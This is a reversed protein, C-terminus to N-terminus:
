HPRRYTSTARERNDLKAGCHRRGESRSVFARTREHGHSRRSAVPVFPRGHNGRHRSPDGITHPRQSRSGRVGASATARVARRGRDPRRRRRRPRRSRRRRRGAADAGAVVASAAGAAAAGVPGAARLAAAAAARRRRRLGIRGHDGGVLAAGLDRQPRHGRQRQHRDPDEHVDAREGRRGLDGGAREALAGLDVAVAGAAVAGAALAADAAREGVALDVEVNGCCRPGAASRRSRSRPSCGRRRRWSRRGRAALAARVSVPENPTM